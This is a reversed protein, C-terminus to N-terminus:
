RCQSTHARRTPPTGRPRATASPVRDVDRPLSEGYRDQRPQLLKRLSQPTEPSYRHSNPTKRLLAKVSSSPTLVETDIMPSDWRLNLAPREARAIARHSHFRCPMM